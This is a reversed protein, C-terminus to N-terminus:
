FRSWWEPRQEEWERLIRVMGTGRDYEIYGADRLGELAAIVGAASRGTKVGLEGM